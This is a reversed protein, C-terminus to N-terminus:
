GGYNDSIITVRERAAMRVAAPLMMWEYNLVEDQLLSAAEEIDYNGEIFSFIIHDPIPVAGILM